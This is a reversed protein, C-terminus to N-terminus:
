CCGSSRGGKMCDGCCAPVSRMERVPRGPTWLLTKSAPIDSFVLGGRNEAWVPGETFEFGDAIVRLEADEPFIGRLAAPAGQSGAGKAKM